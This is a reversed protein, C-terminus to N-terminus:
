AEVGEASSVEAKEEDQCIIAQSINKSLIKEYEDEILVRLMDSTKRRYHQKVLEFKTLISEDVIFGITKM